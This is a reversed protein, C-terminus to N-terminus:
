LTKYILKFSIHSVVSVQKFCTEDEFVGVGFVVNTNCMTKQVIPSSVNSWGHHKQYLTKLTLLIFKTDYAVVIWIAFSHGVYNGVISLDKFRPDLMLVVMNHAKSLKFCDMFDLFPRLVSSSGRTHQCWAKEGKHV